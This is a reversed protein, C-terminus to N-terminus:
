SKQSWRGNKDQQWTTLKTSLKQREAEKVAEDYDSFLGSRAVTGDDSMVKFTKNGESDIYCDINGGFVKELDKDNVELNKSSSVKNKEM